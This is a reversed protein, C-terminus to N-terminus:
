IFDHKIDEPKAKKNNFLVSSIPNEKRKFSGYGLLRSQDVNHGGGDKDTLVQKLIEYANAYSSAKALGLGVAEFIDQVERPTCAYIRNMTSDDIDRINIKTAGEFGKVIEDIDESTKVKQADRQGKIKLSRLQKNRGGCTKEVNIRRGRLMTHHLGLSKHLERPGDLEVFATGKSQGTISDTNLRVSIMGEVGGSRLHEELDTSKVKYDLQGVFLVYPIRGGTEGESTRTPNSNQATVNELPRPPHPELEVGESGAACSSIMREIRRRIKSNLVFATTMSKNRLVSAFTAQLDARGVLQGVSHKSLSDEFSVTSSAIKIDNCWAQFQDNDLAPLISQETAVARPATDSISKVDIGSCVATKHKNLVFILRSIRRRLKKDIVISTLGLRSELAVSLAETAEKDASPPVTVENLAKELEEASAAAYLSAFPSVGIQSLSAILRTVRRRVKSTAAIDGDQLFGSLLTIFDFKDDENVEAVVLLNLANELELQSSVRRLADLPSANM